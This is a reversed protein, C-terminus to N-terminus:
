FLPLAIYGDQVYGSRYGQVYPLFINHVSNATSYHTIYIIFCWVIVSLHILPILYHHPFLEYFFAGLVYYLLVPVSLFLQVGHHLSFPIKYFQAQCVFDSKSFSPSVPVVQTTYFSHPLFLTVHSCSTFFINHSCRRSIIPSVASFWLTPLDSSRWRVKQTYSLYVM